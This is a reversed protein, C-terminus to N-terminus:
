KSFWGIFQTHAIDRTAGYLGRRNSGDIDMIFYHWEGGEEAAEFLASRGDPGPSVIGKVQKIEQHDSGDLNVAHVVDHATFLIKSKDSALFISTIPEDSFALVDRRKKTNTDVAFIGRVDAAVLLAHAPYFQAAHVGFVTAIAAYSHQKVDIAGVTVTGSKIRTCYAKTGDASWGSFTCAESASANIPWGFIDENKKLDRITLSMTGVSSFQKFYVMTAGDPAITFHPDAPVFFSNSLPVTKGERTLLIHYGSDFFVALNEGYEAVVPIAANDRWPAAFIEEKSFPAYYVKFVRFRKDAVSLESILFYDGRIAAGGTYLSPLAHAVPIVVASSVDGMNKGGSRMFQYAVLFVGGVMLLVFVLLAIWLLNQRRQFGHYESDSQVPQM